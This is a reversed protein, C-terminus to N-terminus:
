AAEGVVRRKLRERRRRENRAAWGPVRIVEPMRVVLFGLGDRLLRVGRADLDEPELEGEIYVRSVLRSRSRDVRRLETLASSLEEYSGAVVRDRYARGAGPFGADLAQVVPADGLGWELMAGVPGVRVARL